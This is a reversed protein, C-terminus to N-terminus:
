DLDMDRPKKGFEPNEKAKKFLEDFKRNLLEGQNKEAEFSKRFVEDRRGAEGKLKAVAATLDEIAPPRVAEEHAIVAHLEADVTLKAQCCPCSVDFRERAM